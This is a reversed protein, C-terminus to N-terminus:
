GVNLKLTALGYAIELEISMSVGGIFTGALM